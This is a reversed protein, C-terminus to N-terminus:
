IFAHELSQPKSLCLLAEHLESSFALMLMMKRENVTQNVRCHWSTSCLLVPVLKLCYLLFQIQSSHTSRDASASLTFRSPVDWGQCVGSPWRALKHNRHSASLLWPATRKSGPPSVALAWQWRHKNSWTSVVVCVSCEPVPPPLFHPKIFFFFFFASHLHRHKLRLGPTHLWTWFISM